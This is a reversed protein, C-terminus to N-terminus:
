RINVVTNQVIDIKRKDDAMAQLIVVVRDFELKTFQIKLQDVFAIAAQQDESLQDSNSKPEFSVSGQQPTEQKEPVNILGALAEGGPISKLIQPNRRIFSEVFTSGVEGLLGKFPSQKDQLAKNDSELEEVEKELDSVERKLDANERELNGYQWERKQREVQEAIRADIDLGDLSERASGALTFICRDNNNSTGSYFVIEVAKTDAGIFRQFDMFEDPNNTRRVARFGDVVVEYDIARGKEAYMKLYELQKDIKVPDYKERSLLAM